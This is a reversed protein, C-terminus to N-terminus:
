TPERTAYGPPPEWGEVIVAVVAREADGVLYPVTASIRSSNVRKHIAQALKAREAAFRSLDQTEYVKAPLSNAAAVREAVLARIADTGFVVPETDELARRADPDSLADVTERSRVVKQPERDWRVVVCPLPCVYHHHPGRYYGVWWDAFDLYVRLARPAKM